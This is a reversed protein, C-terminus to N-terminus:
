RSQCNTIVEMLRLSWLFAEADTPNIRMTRAHEKLLAYVDSNAKAFEYPTKEYLKFALGNNVNDVM